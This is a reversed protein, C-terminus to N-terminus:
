KNKIADIPKMNSLRKVPVFSALFVVVFALALMELIIVASINFIALKMGMQASLNDNVLAATAILSIIALLATFVAIIIAETVFISAVDRGRAGIARLTGIERKSALVSSTIMMFMLGSAFLALVLSIYRFIHAQEDRVDGVMGLMKGTTTNHMHGAERGKRFFEANYEPDDSLRVVISQANDISFPNIQDFEKESLVLSGWMNEYLIALKLGNKDMLDELYDWYNWNRGLSSSNFENETMTGVGRERLLMRMYEVSVRYNFHNPDRNMVAIDQDAFRFGHDTLYRHMKDVSAVQRYKDFDLVGVIKMKKTYLRIYHDRDVFYIEIEKNLYGSDVLKNYIAKANGGLKGKEDRSMSDILKQIERNDEMHHIRALTEPSALIENEGLGAFDPAVYLYQNRRSNDFINEGCKLVANGIGETEWPNVADERKVTIDYVDSFSDVEEAYERYFGEKVIVRSYISNEKNTYNGVESVYNKLQSRPINNLYLYDRYDTGAIGSIVYEKSGIPYKEGVLDKASSYKESRSVLYDAVFDTLMIERQNQPFRGESAKLDVDTLSNLELFGTIVKPSVLSEVTDLRIMNSTFDHTMGYSLRNYRAMFESIEEVNFPAKAREQKEWNEVVRTNTLQITQIGGRGYSIASSKAFNFRSITESAGFMGVAVFFLLITVATRVKKKWVTHLAMKLSNSFPLKSKILRFPNVLASDAMSKRAPNVRNKLREDRTGQISSVEKVLPIYIEGRSQSVYTNISEIEMSTIPGGRTVPVYLASNEKEILINIEDALEQGISGNPPIRIVRTIEGDTRYYDANESIYKLGGDNYEDSVILGDHMRIIRDAYKYANEQDHSVVIILKEEALRRLIDFIQTGTASDLNGTPEDALIIEPSKVLARAIAIRQKQGGSLENPKRKGYQTLDVQELIEHVRGSVEQKKVGQLELALGINKAISYEEIINFDQFVFGLYTNRYSDWDKASFDKTSKSKIIIDGSDFRDLGGLVNLLTSKGCGSKGLIFILGARSFALDIGKLAHFSEGKEAKYYKHLNKIKLM